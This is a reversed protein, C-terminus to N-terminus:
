GEREDNAPVPLGRLVRQRKLEFARRDEDWTSVRALQLATIRRLERDEREAESESLRRIMEVRDDFASM